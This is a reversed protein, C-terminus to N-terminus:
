RLLGAQCAITVQTRSLPSMPTGALYNDAFKGAAEAKLYFQEDEPKELLSIPLDAGACANEIDQLATASVDDASPVGDGTNDTGSAACASSGVALLTAVSFAAPPRKLRNVNMEGSIPM